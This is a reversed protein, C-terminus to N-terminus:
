IKKKELLYVVDGSQLLPNSEAAGTTLFENLDIEIVRYGDQRNERIIRIRSLDASPTPGALAVAESLRTESPIQVLASREVAGLVTVKRSSTPVQYVPEGARARSAATAAAPESAFAALFVVCLLPKM